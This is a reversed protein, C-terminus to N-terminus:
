LFTTSFKLFKLFIEFYNKFIKFIKFILFFIEFNLFFNLFIFNFFSAFLKLTFISVNAFEEFYSSPFEGIWADKELVVVGNRPAM